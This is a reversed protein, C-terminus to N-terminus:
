VLRELVISAKNGTGVLQMTVRYTNLNTNDTLIMQLMDGVEDFDFAVSPDLINVDTTTLSIDQTFQEVTEDVKIYFGIALVNVTGSATKMQPYLSPGPPAYMKFIFNGIQVEFNVDVIKAVRDSVPYVINSAVTLTNAYVIESARIDGLITLGKITSTTATTIYANTSTTAITFKENAVYGLTTGYNRLLTVQRVNGSTGNTNDQIPTSPLTWGNDGIQSSFAPGVLRTGTESEIYLQNNAKDFWFDGESLAAPRSPSVRAGNIPEWETDYINLKRSITNYYIQGKVPNVPASSNAFNGMLKILNNNWLEGYNGFNKGILAISTSNTDVKGDGLLVLITGDTNRITYAM